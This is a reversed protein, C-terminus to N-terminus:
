NMYSKLTKRLDKEVKVMPKNFLDAIFCALASPIIETGDKGAGGNLWENDDNGAMWDIAQKYNAM